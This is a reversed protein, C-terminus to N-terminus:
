IAVFTFRRPGLIHDTRCVSSHYKIEEWRGNFYKIPAYKPNVGVAVGEEMVTINTKDDIWKEPLARIAQLYLKGNKM